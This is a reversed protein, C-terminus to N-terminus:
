SVPLRELDKSAAIPKDGAGAGVDSGTGASPPRRHLDSLSLDERWMFFLGLLVVPVILVLHVIVTYGAADAEAARFVSVLVQKLTLDFTGVYGPSAPVLTALNAAGSGMLASPIGGPISFGLAIVLYMGSEIFWALLSLGLVPLASSWRGLPILGDLVGDILKAARERVKVPLVVLCAIGIRRASDPALAGWLLGVTAVAFIASVIGALFWWDTAGALVIGLVLIATLAIGDLVREVVISALSTGIPVAAHRALLFVRAVEGLRGPLLDNVTLGIVLSRFLLPVSLDHTPLLMRWRVSRIFTGVFYLGVAPILWAPHGQSLSRGIEEISVTRLLLFVCALSIGIGFATRVLGRVSL